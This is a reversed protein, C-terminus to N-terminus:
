RRWSVKVLQGFGANESMGPDRGNDCFRRAADILLLASKQLSFGQRLSKGCM